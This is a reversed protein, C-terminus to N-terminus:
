AISIIYGMFPCIPLEWLIDATLKAQWTVVGITAIGRKAYFPAVHVANLALDAERRAIVIAFCACVQEVKVLLPQFM